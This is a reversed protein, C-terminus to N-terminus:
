RKRKGPSNLNYGGIIKTRKSSFKKFAANLGKASYQAPEPLSTIRSLKGCAESYSFTRKTCLLPHFPVIM